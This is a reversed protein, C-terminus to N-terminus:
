ILLGLLEVCEIAGGPCLRQGGQAFQESVRENTNVRKM